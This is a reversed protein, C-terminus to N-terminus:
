AEPRQRVRDPRDLGPDDGRRQAARDAAVALRAELAADPLDDDAHGAGEATAALDADRARLVPQEVDRHHRRARAYPEHAARVAHAGPTEGLLGVHHVPAAGRDVDPDGPLPGEVDVALRAAAFRRAERQM